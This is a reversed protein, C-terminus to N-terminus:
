DCSVVGEKVLKIVAIKNLKKNYFVLDSSEEAWEHTQQEYGEEKLIKRAEKYPNTPDPVLNQTVQFEGHNDEKTIQVALIKSM